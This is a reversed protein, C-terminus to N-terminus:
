SYVLVSYGCRVELILAMSITLYTFLVSTTQRVGDSVPISTVPLAYLNLGLVIYRNLFFLVSAGTVKRNWFLQVEKGITIIYEYLIIVAESHTSRQPRSIM